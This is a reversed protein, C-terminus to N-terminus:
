GWCIDGVERVTLRRHVRIGGMVRNILKDEKKTTRGRAEETPDGSWGEKFRKHWIYVLTRSVHKRREITEM